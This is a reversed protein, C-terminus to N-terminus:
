RFAQWLNYISLGTILVGVITMLVQTPAYRILVAALPAAFFGGFVLGAITM